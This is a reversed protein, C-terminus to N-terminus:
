LFAESREYRAKTALVDAQLLGLSMNNLDHTLQLM